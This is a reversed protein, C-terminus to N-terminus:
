KSRLEELARGGTFSLVLDFKGLGGAPLYDVQKGQQLGDLTVPTDLDYFARIGARSSLILEAAVRGDPCYSTSLALDAADVERRAEDAIEQFSGYLRLRGGAPLEQLDREQAYYPVSREYFTVTHGRRLLAKVLSRWLTAHGNGWSSSITLGFIVIHM